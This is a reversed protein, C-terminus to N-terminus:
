EWNLNGKIIYHGIMIGITLGGVLIGIVVNTRLSDDTYTSYGFAAVTLFILSGISPYIYARLDRLIRVHEQVRQYLGVSIKGFVYSGIVGFLGYTVIQTKPEYSSQYIANVAEDFQMVLIYLGIGIYFIWGLHIRNFIDSFKDEIDESHEVPYVVQFEAKQSEILDDEELGELIEEIQDNDYANDTFKEIVSDRKLPLLKKEGAQEELYDLIARKKEEKLQGM